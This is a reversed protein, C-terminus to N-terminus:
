VRPASSAIVVRNRGTTKAEYLALDALGLLEATQTGQIPYISAGASFTVRRLFVGDSARLEIRLSERLRDLMAILREQSPGSFAILLEEGGLRGAVDGAGLSARLHTAIERLVRDGTPHGLDDNVRKFHDIDIIGVLAFEGKREAAQLLDDVASLAAARNLLDTLGDADLRRRLIRNRKLLIEVSEVLEEDTLPKTLYEDAGARAAVRRDERESRRTLFVIPLMEHRADSRVIRTLDIGSVYPLDWELIMMDPRFRVADELLRQPDTVVQVVHGAAELSSKVFDAEADSSEVVLIKAQRVQADFTEPRLVTRLEFPRHIMRQAGSSALRLVDFGTNHEAYLIRIRPVRTLRGLKACISYGDGGASVDVLAV